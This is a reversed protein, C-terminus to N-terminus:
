SDVMTKRADNFQTMPINVPAVNGHAIKGMRPILMETMWVKLRIM